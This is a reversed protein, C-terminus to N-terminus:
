PTDGDSQDRSSQPTSLRIAPTDNTGSLESLERLRPSTAASAPNSSPSSAVSLVERKASEISRRRGQDSGSFAPASKGAEASVRRGSDPAKSPVSPGRDEEESAVSRSSHNVSRRSPHISNGPRPPLQPTFDHSGLSASKQHRASLPVSSVQTYASGYGYQTTVEGTPAPPLPHSTQVVPRDAREDFLVSAYTILDEM